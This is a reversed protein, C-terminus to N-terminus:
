FQLSSITEVSDFGERGRPLHAVVKEDVNKRLPMGLKRVVIDEGQACQTLRKNLAKVAVRDATLM